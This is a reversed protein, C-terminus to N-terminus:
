EQQETKVWEFVVGETKFSQIRDDKLDQIDFDYGSISVKNEKLLLM